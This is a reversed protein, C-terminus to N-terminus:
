KGDQNECERRDDGKQQSAWLGAGFGLVHFDVSRGASAQRLNKDASHRVVPKAPQGAGLPCLALWAEDPAAPGDTQPERVAAQFLGIIKARIQSTKGRSHEGQLASIRSMAMTVSACEM